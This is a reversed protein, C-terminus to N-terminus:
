DLVGAPTNRFNDKGTIVPDAHCSGVLVQAVGLRLSRECALIKM